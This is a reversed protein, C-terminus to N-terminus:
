GTNFNALAEVPKGLGAEKGALEESSSEVGLGGM